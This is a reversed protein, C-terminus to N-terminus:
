QCARVRSVMSRLSDPALPQGDMVSVLADDFNELAGDCQSSSSDEVGLLNDVLLPGTLDTAWESATSSTSVQTWVPLYGSRGPGGEPAYVIRRQVGSAMLLDDVRGMATAYEELRWSMDGSVCAMSGHRGVERCRWDGTSEWVDELQITATAGVAIVAVLIAAGLWRWWHGGGPTTVVTVLLLSVVIVACDLGAWLVIAQWTLHSPAGDIAAPGSWGILLDAAGPITSTVCYVGIAAVAALLYSGAVVGLVAGLALFATAAMATLVPGMVLRPDADGAALWALVAVTVGASLLLVVGVGVVWITVIASTASRPWARSTTTVGTRRLRAGYAAGAACCLPSLIVTDVSFSGTTLAFSKWAHHYMQLLGVSTAIWLVALGLGSWVAQRCCTKM